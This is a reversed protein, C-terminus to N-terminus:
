DMRSGVHCTIGAEKLYDCMAKAHAIKKEMSQGHEGIWIDWGGYYSKHGIDNKKLWKAFSQTAPKVTIWAFGCPGDPIVHQSGPIPTNDFLGVPQYVIMPQPNHNFGADYGKLNAKSYLAAFEFDKDNHIKFKEAM